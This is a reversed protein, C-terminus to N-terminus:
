GVCSRLLDHLWAEAHPRLPEGLQENVIDTAAALVVAEANYDLMSSYAQCLRLLNQGNYTDQMDAIQFTAILDEPDEDGCGSVLLVVAALALILALATRKM